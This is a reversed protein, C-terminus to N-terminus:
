GATSRAATSVDQAIRGASPERSRRDLPIDEPPLRERQCNSALHVDPAVLTGDDLERTLGTGTVSFFQGATSDDFCSRAHPHSLAARHLHTSWPSAVNGDAHGF